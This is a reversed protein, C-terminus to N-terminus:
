CRADRERATEAVAEGATDADAVHVDRVELILAGARARDVDARLEGGENDGLEPLVAMRVHKLARGFALLRLLLEQARDLADILDEQRPVNRFTRLFIANDDHARHRKAIEFGVLREPLPGHAAFPLVRELLPLTAILGGELLSEVLDDAVDGVVREACP